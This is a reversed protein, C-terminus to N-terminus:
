RGNWRRANGGARRRRAPTQLRRIRGLVVGVPDLCVAAHPEFTIADVPMRAGHPTRLWIVRRLCRISSCQGDGCDTFGAARLDDMSHYKWRASRTGRIDVLHQVARRFAGEFNADRPTRTIWDRLFLPLAGLCSNCVAESARKSSGCGLCLPATAVSVDVLQVPTSV